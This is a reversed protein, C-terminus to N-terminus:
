RSIGAVRRAEKEARDELPKGSSFRGAFMPGNLFLSFSNDKILGGAIAMHSPPHGRM